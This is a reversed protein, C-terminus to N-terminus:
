AIPPARGPSLILAISVFDYEFTKFVFNTSVLTDYSTHNAMEMNVHHMSDCLACKESVTPQSSSKSSHCASKHANKNIYHQHAYVM